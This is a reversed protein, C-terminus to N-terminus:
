QSPEAVLIVSQDGVEYDRDAFHEQLIPVFAKEMAQQEPHGFYWFGTLVEAAETIRAELPESKFNAWANSRKLTIKGFGHKSFVRACQALLYGQHDYASGQLGATEAIPACVRNILNVVENDPAGQVIVIRANPAKADVVRAMETLSKELDDVYHLIWCAVVADFTGEEYPIDEARGGRVEVPNDAGREALLANRDANPEIAFAKGIREAIAVPLDAGGGGHGSGVDLVNKNGSLTDVTAAFEHRTLRSAFPVWASQSLIHPARRVLPHPYPGYLPELTTRQATIYLYDFTEGTEAAFKHKEVNHIVLGTEQVMSLLKKKAIYTTPLSRGMFEVAYREIYDNKMERLTKEDVIDEAALTGFLFVGGPRVWSAQNFLMSYQERMSLQFTSFISIVADFQQKPEYDTMSVREFTGPVTKDCFDVMKGSIDIGTVKFGQKALYRAPGGAGCGCDLVTAGAGAYAKLGDLARNLGVNGGYADEYREAIQDFLSQADDAHPAM